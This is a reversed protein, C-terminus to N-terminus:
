TACHLMHTNNHAIRTDTHSRTSHEANCLFQRRPPETEYARVDVLEQLVDAVLVVHQTLVVEITRTHATVALKVSQHHCCRWTVHAVHQM